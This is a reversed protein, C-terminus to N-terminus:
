PSNFSTISCNNITLSQSNTLCRATDPKSSTGLEVLTLLDASSSHSVSKDDIELRVESCCAGDADSACWVLAGRRTLVTVALVTKVTIKWTFKTLLKGKTNSKQKDQFLVKPSLPPSEIPQIDKRDGLCCHCVVSPFEFCHSVGTAKLRGKKMWLPFPTAEKINARHPRMM